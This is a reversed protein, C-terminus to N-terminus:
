SEQWGIPDEPGLLLMMAEELELAQFQQQLLNCLLLQVSM